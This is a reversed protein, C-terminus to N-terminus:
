LYDYFYIASRHSFKLYCRNCDILPNCGSPFARKWLFLVLSLSLPLSSPPLPPLSFLTRASSFLPWWVFIGVFLFFGRFKKRQPCLFFSFPIVSVPKTCPIHIRSMGTQEALKTKSGADGVSDKLPWASVKSHGRSAKYKSTVDLSGCLQRSRQRGTCDWLQLRVRLM